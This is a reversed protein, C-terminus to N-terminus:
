NVLEIFSNDMAVTLWKNYLQGMCVVMLMYKIVWEHVYMNFGEYSNIILIIDNILWSNYERM